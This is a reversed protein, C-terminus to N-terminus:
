GKSTQNPDTVSRKRRLRRGLILTSQRSWSFTRLVSKWTLRKKRRACPLMKSFPQLTTTTRSRQKRRKSIMTKATKSGRNFTWVALVRVILLSAKLRMMTMAKTIIYWTTRVLTRCTREFSRTSCLCTRQQIRPMAVMGTSVMMLPSPNPNGTLLLRQKERLLQRSARFLTM